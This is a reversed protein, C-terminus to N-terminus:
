AKGGSLEQVAQRYQITDPATGHWAPNNEMFSVGKGKVTHCIICHPKPKIRGRPHVAENFAHRIASINHGDVHRVRFGFARFKEALNGTPMVDCCFGDNQIKNEDVIFILNDLNYKVATQAAEWIIGEQCEGDGLVAFIRNTRGALKTGLALGVAAAAGQGLSGTSFDVGPTKKMDPHGQLISGFRRLTHLHEEGFYDRLYLCAYLAPCCHGKSLICYDRDAAHPNGPFIRLTDFYLVTLIDAASLSGGPHGSQAEYIMKLAILRVKAATEALITNKDGSFSEIMDNM